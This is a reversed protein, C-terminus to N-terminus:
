LNNRVVKCKLGPWGFRYLLLLTIKLFSWHFATKQTACTSVKESIDRESDSASYVGGGDSSSSSLSTAVSSISLDGDYDRMTNEHLAHLTGRAGTNAGHKFFIIFKSKRLLSFEFDFTKCMITMEQLRRRQGEMLAVNRLYRSSQDYSNPALMSM